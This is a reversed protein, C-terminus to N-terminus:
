HGLLAQKKDKLKLGILFAMNGVMMSNNKIFDNLDDGADQGLSRVGVMAITAGLVILVISGLHKFGEGYQAKSFASFASVAPKISFAVSAVLIIVTVLRELPSNLSQFLKTITDFM